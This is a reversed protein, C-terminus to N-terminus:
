KLDLMWRAGMSDISDEVEGKQFSPTSSDIGASCGGDDSDGFGIDDNLMDIRLKVVGNLLTSTLPLGRRGHESRQCHAFRSCGGKCDTSRWARSDHRPSKSCALSRRYSLTQEKSDFSVVAPSSSFVSVLKNGKYTDRALYSVSVSVSVSVSRLIL